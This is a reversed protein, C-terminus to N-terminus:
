QARSAAPANDSAAANADRTVHHTRQKFRVVVADLLM